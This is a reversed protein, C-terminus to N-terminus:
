NNGTNINLGRLTFDCFGTAQNKGTSTTSVNFDIWTGPPLINDPYSSESPTSTSNFSATAGSGVGYTSVFGTTTAGEYTGVGLEYVTAYAPTSTFQVSANTLTSTATTKYACLTTTGQSFGIPQYYHAIGNFILPSKLLTSVAGFQESIPAQNGRLAVYAAFLGVLLAVTAVIGIIKNTM